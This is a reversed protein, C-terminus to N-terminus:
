HTKGLRRKVARSSAHLAHEVFVSCTYL